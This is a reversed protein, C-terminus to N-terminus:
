RILRPSAIRHSTKDTWRDTPGDIWNDFFISVSTQSTTFTEQTHTLPFPNYVSAWGDAVIYYGRTVQEGTDELITAELWKTSAFEEM